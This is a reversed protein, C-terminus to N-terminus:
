TMSDNNWFCINLFKLFVHLSINGKWMGINTIAQFYVNLSYTNMKWYALVLYYTNYTNYPNCSSQYHIYLYKNM